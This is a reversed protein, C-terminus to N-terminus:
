SSSSSTSPNMLKPKSNTAQHSFFCFTFFPWLGAPNYCGWLPFTNWFTLKIISVEYKWSEWAEIKSQPKCNM